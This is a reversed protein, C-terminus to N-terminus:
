GAEVVVPLAAEQLVLKRATAVSTHNNLAIDLKLLTELDQDNILIGAFVYLSLQGEDVVM